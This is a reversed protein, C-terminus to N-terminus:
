LSKKGWRKYLSNEIGMLDLIKGVMFDTLDDIKKPHHYFSPMAPLIISGAKIAQEMSTVHIYSLPTERPVLILKRKEKLTVDAARLLLNTSIGHAICSLTKMSCPVVIMGDTKFSGSNIPADDEDESYSFDAMEEVERKDMNLEFKIIKDASKTIVLHTEINKLGSLYELLKVGYIVGSAGSLGIVLKM